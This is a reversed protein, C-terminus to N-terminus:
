DLLHAAESLTDRSISIGAPLALEHPRDRTMLKSARGACFVLLETPEVFRSFRFLSRLPADRLVPGTHRALTQHQLIAEARSMPLLDEPVIVFAM